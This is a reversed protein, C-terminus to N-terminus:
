VEVGRRPMSEAAAQNDQRPFIHNERAYLAAQLRDKVRIKPLIKRFHWKVTDPSIFLAEGIQRNTHGLRLLGLIERERSTLLADAGAASLARHLARAVLHRPAWIQGAAVAEIAKTLAEATAEGGLYGSCGLALLRCLEEERCQDGLVLLRPFGATRSAERVAAEDCLELAQVGVVAVGGKDWGLAVLDQITAVPEAVGLNKHGALLGSIAQRFLPRPDVVLVSIAM